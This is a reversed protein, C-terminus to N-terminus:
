CNGHSRQRTPRARRMPQQYTAHVPSLAIRSPRQDDHTASVAGAASRGVHNAKWPEDHAIAWGATGARAPRRAGGDPPCPPVVNNIPATANTSLARPKITKMLLAPNRQAPRDGITYQARGTMLAVCRGPSTRAGVAAVPALTSRLTAACICSARPADALPGVAGLLAATAADV